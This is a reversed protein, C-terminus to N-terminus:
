VARGVDGEARQPALAADVTANYRQLVGVLDVVEDTSWGQMLRGFRERRARGVREMRARGEASLHLVLARADEPDATREVLDLDVLQHVARSMAGKDVGLLCAIDSARSTGDRELQDLVGYGLPSLTPDVLQAREAVSRRVRRLMLWLEHEVDALVRLDPGVDSGADASRTSM